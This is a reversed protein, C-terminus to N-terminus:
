CSDESLAVLGLRDAESITTACDVVDPCLDIIITEPFFECGPERLENLLGPDFNLLGADFNLLGPEFTISLGCGSGGLVVTFVEILEFAELTISLGCGSGGFVLYNQWIFDKKSQKSSGTKSPHQTDNEWNRCVSRRPGSYTAFFAFSRFPCHV